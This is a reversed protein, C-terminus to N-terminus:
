GAQNHAKVEAGLLFFGIINGFEASVLNRSKKLQTM